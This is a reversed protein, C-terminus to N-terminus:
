YKSKLEETLIKIRPTKDINSHVQSHVEPLVIVLNWEEMKYKEYKENGKELIHHYCCSNNRYNSRHMKAGTEFCYCYGDADETKDWVRLFWEHMKKSDIKEQVREIKKKESIKKIPKRYNKMWCNKLMGKSFLRGSNGCGCSCIKEITKM